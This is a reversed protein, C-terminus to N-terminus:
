SESVDKLTDIQIALKEINDKCVKMDKLHSDICSVLFYENKESNVWKKFEAVSKILQEQEMSLRQEKSKLLESVTM